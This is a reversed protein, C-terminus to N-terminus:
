DFPIDDDLELAPEPEAAPKAPAEGKPTLLDISQVRCRLSAGMTGDQKQYKHLSVEGTIGIRSGAVLYSTVPNPQDGKGWLSCDVWTTERNEGWGSSLAFSFTTVAKGSKTMRVVADDKGLNGIACLTNM